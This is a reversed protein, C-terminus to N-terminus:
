FGGGHRILTLESIEDGAMPFLVGLLAGPVIQEAGTNMVAYYGYEYCHDPDSGSPTAM